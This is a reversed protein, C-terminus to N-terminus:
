CASFSSATLALWVTWVLLFNCPCVQCDSSWLLNSKQSASVDPVYCFTWVLLFNCPCVRCDSSWLLNSKQSASVDPVYCFTWVLLFRRKCRCVRCDSSWLLNNKQSASVHSVYRATMAQAHCPHLRWNIEWAMKATRHVVHSSFLTTTPVSQLVFRWRPRQESLCSCCNCCCRADPMTGRLWLHGAVLPRLGQYPKFYM